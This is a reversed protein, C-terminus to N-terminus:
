SRAAKRAVKRAPKEAPAKEEGAEAAALKPERVVTSEAELFAHTASWARYLNEPLDDSNSRPAIAYEVGEFGFTVENDTPNHLKM